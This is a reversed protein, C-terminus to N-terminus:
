ILNDIEKHIIIREFKTSNNEILHQKLNEFYKRIDDQEEVSLEKILYYDYEKYLWGWTNDQYKQNKLQNIFHMIIDCNNNKNIAVCSWVKEAKGEKVKQVSNLHCKRNFPLEGLIMEKDSIKKYNSIVYNKIKRLIKERM